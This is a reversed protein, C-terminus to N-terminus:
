IEKLIEEMNEVIESDKDEYLDLSPLEKLEKLGFQRLFEDTTGYLIPRGPVELRGVEKILDKELLRQMASESKVGRIEDIDVRTIPQKYAIIALSELSAQSLSQRKNKKLLKQIYNSNEAKSVLQYEGNISILKIGRKENEYENMMEELITKITKISIELANSLDKVTLPDGSVFLLSEIISKIRPKSSIQEFEYQEVEIKNM